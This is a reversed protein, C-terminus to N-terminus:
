NLNIELVKLFIEEVEEYISNINKLDLSKGEEGKGLEITYGINQLENVSWDKYGAFSSNYEPKTLLYGSVKEFFKGLEYATSLKDKGADWYIEKGQSHLSITIDFGYLKTFNYLAMTEPESLANQGAYDRPGASFIGKKAKNIKAQEFSYPYNLNLDIGRINAKWFQLNDVYEEWIDRYLDSKKFKDVNLVLEVGDPNVMPVVYLTSNKWLEDIRYSKYNYVYNNKLYLYKEVFLMIVLSSIWENAHHSANIFIKNKGEGIKLYKIEEGLVSKGINGIFFNNYKNKLLYLDNKLLNYNYPLYDKVINKLKIV